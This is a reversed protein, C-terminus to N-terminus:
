QRVEAAHVLQVTQELAGIVLQMQTLDLTRRGAAGDPQVTRHIQCLRSKLSSSSPMSRCSASSIASLIPPLSCNVDTKVPLLAGYIGHGTGTRELRRFAIKAVVLHFIQRSPDSDLVPMKTQRIHGHTFAELDKVKFAPGPYCYFLSGHRVLIAFNLKELQKRM